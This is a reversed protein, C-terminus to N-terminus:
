RTGEPPGYEEQVVREYVGQARLIATIAERVAGQGGPRETVYDAVARVEEAADAVAIACGAVHLARLDNLDDGIYAVEALDLGLRAAIEQLKAAKDRVNQHLETVELEGARDEVAESERATLFAITLGAAQALRIGLGDRTHFVKTEVGNESYVLRGDTLVGDVDMALLRVQKM